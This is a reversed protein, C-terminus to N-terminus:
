PTLAWPHGGRAGAPPASPANRVTVAFQVGEFVGELWGVLQAQAIRLEADSVTAGTVLPPVIEEFETRLEAPLIEELEAVARGYVAALRQRGRDDLPMAHIEELMQKIMSGIRLLRPPDPVAPPAADGSM